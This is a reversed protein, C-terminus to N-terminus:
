LLEIFINRCLLGFYTNICASFIWRPYLRFYTDLCGSLCSFLILYSPEIILHVIWAYYLLLVWLLFLGIFYLFILLGGFWCTVGNM